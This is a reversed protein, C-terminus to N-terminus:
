RGKPWLARHFDSAGHRPKLSILGQTASQFTRFNDAYYGTFLVIFRDSFSKNWVISSNINEVKAENDSMSGMFASESLQEDKKYEGKLELGGIADNQYRIKGNVSSSLTEKIEIESAGQDYGERLHDVSLGYNLEQKGGSISFNGSYM